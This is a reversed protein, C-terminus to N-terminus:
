DKLFSHEDFEIGNDILFQRYEEEFGVTKHYKKQNNIHSIIHQIDPGCSCVAFDDAWGEFGPFYSSKKMWKSSSELIEETLDDLTFDEHMDILLHIHNEVGGICRLKSKKNQIIGTIYAYL